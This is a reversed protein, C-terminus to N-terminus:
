HKAVQAVQNAVDKIPQQTPQPQSAVPQQPTTTQQNAQEPQTNNALSARIEEHTKGQDLLQLYKLTNEDVDKYTGAKWQKYAFDMDENTATNDAIRKKVDEINLQPQETNTAQNANNQVPQNNPTATNTEPQTVTETPAPTQPTPQVPTPQPTMQQMQNNRSPLKFSYIAQTAKGTGAMILSNQITNIAMKDGTFLKGILPIKPLIKKVPIIGKMGGFIVTAALGIGVAPWIFRGVGKYANDVGMGYKKLNNNTYLTDLEMACNTLESNMKYLSKQQQNVQSNDQAPQNKEPEESKKEQEEPKKEQAQETNENDTKETKENNNEAPQKEETAQAEEAEKDKDTSEQETIKIPKLLKDVEYIKEM